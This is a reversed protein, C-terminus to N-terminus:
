DLDFFLYCYDCIFGLCCNFINNNLRDVQKRIDLFMQYCNTVLVSESTSDSPNTEVTVSTVSSNCIKSETRGAKFKRRRSHLKKESLEAMATYDSVTTMIAASSTIAHKDDGSVIASVNETKESGTASQLLIDSRADIIVAAPSASQALQENLVIPSTDHSPEDSSNSM